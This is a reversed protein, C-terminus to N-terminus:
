MPPLSLKEILICNMKDHKGVLGHNPAAVAYDM